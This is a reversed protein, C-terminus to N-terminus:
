RGNTNEPEEAIEPSEELVEVARAWTGERRLRQAAVDAEERRKWVGFVASGSGTMLAAQAGLEVLRRKLLRLGPRIRIAVAELDNVLLEEPSVSRSTFVTNSGVPVANTLAKGRDYEGYVQATSLPEGPYAVVMPWRPHDDCAAVAEGIGTVCAARGRVFFPVDAGLQVAWRALDERGIRGGFLSDLGLLVTAADSSGGGLGAGVPIEKHLHIHVEAREHLRDLFLAAARAALNTPGVAVAEGSSTLVISRMPAPRTRIRMRDFLSIPVMLSQILHYGDSRRGVVRLSLNLKAPASAVVTKWRRSPDAALAGPESGAELAVM